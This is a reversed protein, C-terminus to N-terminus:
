AEFEPPQPELEGRAEAAAAQEAAAAAQAAKESAQRLRLVRAEREADAEDEDVDRGEYDVSSESAFSYRRQQTIPGKLVKMRVLEQEVAAGLEGGDKTVDLDVGIASTAGLALRMAEDKSIKGAVAAKAAADIVADAKAGAATLTAELQDLAEAARESGLAMASATSRGTAKGGAADSRATAKGRSTTAKSRATRATAEGGRKPALAAAQAAAAAATDITGAPAKDSRGAGGAGGGVTDLRKTQTQSGSGSLGAVGEGKVTAAEVDGGVFRHDANEGGMGESVYKAAPHATAGGSRAKDREKRRRRRAAQSEAASGEPGARAAALAGDRLLRADEQAAQLVEEPTQGTKKGARRLQIARKVPNSELPKGDIELPVPEDPRSSAAGSGISPARGSGGAPVEGDADSSDGDLGSGEEGDEDEDEEDEEGSLAEMGAQRRRAREKRMKLRLMTRTLERVLAQGDQDVTFGRRAGGAALEKAVRVRESVTTGEGGGWGEADEAEAPAAKLLSRALGTRRVLMDEVWALFDEGGDGDWLRRWGNRYAKRRNKELVLNLATRRQRKELAKLVALRWMSLPRRSREELVALKREARALRDRAHRLSATRRKFEQEAEALGDTVAQDFANSEKLADVKARLKNVERAGSRAVGEAVRARQDLVEKRRLQGASEVLAEGRRREAEIEIARRGAASMTWHRLMSILRQGLAIIERIEARKRVSDLRSLTRQQVVIGPRICSPLHRGIGNDGGKLVRVWRGQGDRRPWAIRTGLDDEEGPLQGIAAYSAAAEKARQEAEIRAVIAEASAAKEIDMDEIDLEGMSDLDAGALAAAVAARPDIGNAKAEAKAQRIKERVEQVAQRRARARVKQRRRKEAEWRKRVDSKGAFGPLCGGGAAEKEEQDALWAQLERQEALGATVEQPLPGWVLQGDRKRSRYAVLQRVKVNLREALVDCPCDPFAVAAEVEAVPGYPGSFESLVRVLEARDLDFKVRTILPM